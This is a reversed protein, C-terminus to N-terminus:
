GEERALILVVNYSGYRKRLLQNRSFSDIDVSNSLKERWFYEGLGDSCYYYDSDYGRKVFEQKTISGLSVSVEPFYDKLQERMATARRKVMVNATAKGRYKFLNYRIAVKVDGLRTALLLNQHEIDIQQGLNKLSQSTMTALETAQYQKGDLLNLIEKRPPSKTIRNLYVDLRHIMQSDPASVDVQDMLAQFYYFNADFWYEKYDQNNLVDALLNMAKDPESQKLHLVAYLFPRYAALSEDESGIKAIENMLNERDTDERLIRAVARHFLAHGKIRGEDTERVIYGANSIVDGYLGESLDRRLNQLRLEQPYNPVIGPYPKQFLTKLNPFALIMGVIGFFFTMVIGAVQVKRITDFLVRHIADRVGYVQSIENLSALLEDIRQELAKLKTEAQDEVEDAMQMLRLLDQRAQGVLLRKKLNSVDQTIRKVDSASYTRDGHKRFGFLSGVKSLIGQIMSM